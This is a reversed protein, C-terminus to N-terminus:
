YMGSNQVARLADDYNPIGIGSSTRTYASFKNTKM